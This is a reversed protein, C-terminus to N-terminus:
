PRPRSAAPAVSLIKEIKKPDNPLLVAATAAFAAVLVAARMM